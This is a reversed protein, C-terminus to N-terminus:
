NNTMRTRTSQYLTNKKIDAYVGWNTSEVCKKMLM